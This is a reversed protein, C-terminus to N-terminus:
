QTTFQSPPEPDGRVGCGAISLSLLALVLCKLILNM